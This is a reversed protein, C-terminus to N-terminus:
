PALISKKVLSDVNLRKPPGLKDWEVDAMTQGDRTKFLGIVRGQVESMLEGVSFRYSVTDGVQIREAPNQPEPMADRTDNLSCISADGSSTLRPTTSRRGNREALADEYLRYARRRTAQIGPPGKQAIAQEVFATLACAHFLDDLIDDESSM